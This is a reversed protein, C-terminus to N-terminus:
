HIWDTSEFHRINGIGCDQRRNGLRRNSRCPPLISSCWHLLTNDQAAFIDTIAIFKSSHTVLIVTTGLKRTLGQPGLVKEAVLSETKADLASLVDDLLLIDLRSHM